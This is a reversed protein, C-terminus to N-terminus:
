RFNEVLMLDCVASDRRGYFITRGDPSVACGGIDAVNGLDPCITLSRSSAFDFYQLTNKDSQELYYVGQNIVAFPGNMARDMVKVPTGGSTPVRWLPVRVNVAPTATFFLDAGDPSEQSHWGGDKTIQVPEGGSLRVKWVQYDGTRTSSFYIWQGDNSFTPVHDMAPHSTVNRPKGGGSPVLFIDFQGEADSAFVIQRGDPSWHPVGTGTPAHLSSLQVANGGDLDSTWIEWEGSRTSTFAVRRGDPSLQPHIDARTSAIAVTPASSAAEGAGPTDLRWINEDTFSRVYILRALGNAQARSVAPMVGDEGVFPVRAPAGGGTAEVRWLGAGAFSATSFLIEAGGPLWTANEPKLGSVKVPRAPGAPTMDRGLPLVHLEGSAWTTRRLFLLSRGDPSVSPNTDAFAPPQPQTLARKEGTELAITFLADPKGEGGSDTAIVCRSDPCWGLFVPNVTVEQVRVDALKREPGGLPPILRVERQSRGLPTAPDGRLFAIWRGDPSWVPNYDSGPDSTLRLPSGAGIQQVFVSTHNEKAAAMTYVVQNGDPSFSPYLEEGPFTTFPEARLAASLPATQKSRVIFFGIAGAMLLSVAALRPWRRVTPRASAGQFKVPRTPNGLNGTFLNVISLRVGHKVECEGWGHLHARWQPYQELDDAVRKSLLIHGAAGCDMVRQAVNIGAGTINTRENVDAVDNVPGSHIGMRVQLEPHAKLRESLELACHVPAEPSNRFVLAMGDGTPLRVLKGDAEAARFQETARVAETLKRLRESQETILLKSYGIIDIFLVHGIEFRLGPQEESPM